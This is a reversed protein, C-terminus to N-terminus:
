PILKAVIDREELLEKETQALKQQQQKSLTLGKIIATKKGSCTIPFSFYIGKSIGYPNGDSLVGMSVWGSDGQTWSVMHDIAASAASAASSAGRAAIVAAGRKQVMPTFTNAVWTPSLLTPLKKRKYLGYTIDPFQTASHNGWVAVQKIDVVSCNLKQAIAGYARNQDLRMMSSFNSPALKPANAMAILTNTNAPNGVVLVKVSKKAVASLARGQEKFINSNDLLLDNREMGPGRPKSGVLFVIDADGFAIKPKDSVSVSELLPFACDDLEMVVGKVKAVVAPVELLSLHIKQKPGFLGGSAIRFILSYAINGAAGTVVVKKTKSM